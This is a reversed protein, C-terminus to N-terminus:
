KYAVVMNRIQSQGTKNEVGVQLQHRQLLKVLQQLNERESSSLLQQVQQLDLAQNQTNPCHNSSIHLLECSPEVIKGQFYIELKQAMVRSHAHLALFVIFLIKLM